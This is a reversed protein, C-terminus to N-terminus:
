VHARGIKCAVVLLVPDAEARFRQNEGYDGLLSPVAHVALLGVAFWWGAPVRRRMSRSAACGVLGALVVAWAAFPFAASWLGLLSWLGPATQKPIDLTQFYVDSRSLFRMLSGDLQENGRLVGWLATPEKAIAARAFRMWDDALALRAGANYNIGQSPSRFLM